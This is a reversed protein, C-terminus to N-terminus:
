IGGIKIAIWDKQPVHGYPTLMYLDGFQMALNVQGNITDGTAVHVTTHGSHRCYLLFYMGYCDQIPPLKMDAKTAMVFKPVGGWNAMDWNDTHTAIAEMDPYFTNWWGHNIYTPEYMGSLWIRNNKAGETLVIWAGDSCDGAEMYLGTFDSNRFDGYILSGITENPLSEVSTDTITLSGPGQGQGADEGVIGRQGAKVNICSNSVHVANAGDKLHINPGTVDRFWCKDIVSYYPASLGEFVVGAGTFACNEFSAFQMRITIGGDFLIGIFRNMGPGGVQQPNGTIITGLDGFGGRGWASDFKIGCGVFTVGPPIVVGTFDWVGRALRCTIPANANLYDVLSATDNFQDSATFGQPSQAPM